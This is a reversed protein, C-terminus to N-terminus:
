RAGQRLSRFIALLEEPVPAPLDEARLLRLDVITQRLQEVYATCGPCVALHAEFIARAQAPMAGELYETVLEVLERCTMEPETM